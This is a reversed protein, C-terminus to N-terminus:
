KKKKTGRKKSLAAARPQTKQKKRLKQYRTKRGNAIKPLFKRVAEIEEETWLQTTTIGAVSAHPAPIKGTAIYNALTSNPIGLKKAAERTSYYNM